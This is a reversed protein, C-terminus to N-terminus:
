WIQVRQEMTQISDLSSVMWQFTDPVFSDNLKQIGCFIYILAVLIQLSIFVTTYNNPEDVRYKYFLLILLILIYNFFWPQLRNQDDICLYISFLILLICPLKKQSKFSFVVLIVVVLLHIYDYPSPLGSYNDIASAKPFMREGAWLHHSLGISVLLGILVTLKIFQLRQTLRM